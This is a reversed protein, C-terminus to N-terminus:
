VTAMVSRLLDPDNDLDLRAKSHEHGLALDPHEAVLGVRMTHVVHHM